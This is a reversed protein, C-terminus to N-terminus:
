TGDSAEGKGTDGTQELAKQEKKLEEYLGFLSWKSNSETLMAKCVIKSVGARRLEALLEDIRKSTFNKMVLVEEAIVPAPEEQQIQDFGPCGALFGVTQGTQQATVNRIRVGMRILVGKLRAARSTNGSQREMEPQYYLVLEGAAM